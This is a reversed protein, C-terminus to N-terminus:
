FLSPTLTCSVHWFSSFFISSIIFYIIFFNFVYHSTYYQFPKARVQHSPKSTIVPPQVKKPKAGSAEILINAHWAVDSSGLNKVGVTREKGCVLFFFFSFPALLSFSFSSFSSSLLFLRLALHLLSTEYRPQSTASLLLISFYLLAGMLLSSFSFYFFSFFSSINRIKLHLFIFECYEAKLYPHRWRQIPKAEFM